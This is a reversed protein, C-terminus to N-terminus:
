VLAEGEFNLCLGKRFLHLYLPRTMQIVCVQTQLRNFLQHMARPVIGALPDDEWSGHARHDREGEMTYTKGTGTQGYSFCFRRPKLASYDFRQNFKLRGSKHM